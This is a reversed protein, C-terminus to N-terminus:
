YQPTQRIVMSAMFWESDRGNTRDGMAVLEIHLTGWKNLYVQGELVESCGFQMNRHSYPSLVVPQGTINCLDGCIGGCGSLLVCDLLVCLNFKGTANLTTPYSFPLHPGCQLRRSQPFGGLGTPHPFVSTMSGKFYEERTFEQSIGEWLPRCFTRLSVALLLIEKTPLLLSGSETLSYMVSSWLTFHSIHIYLFALSEEWLAASFTCGATADHTGLVTYGDQSTTVRKASELSTFVILEHEKRNGTVLVRVSGLVEDPPLEPIRLTSALAFTRTNHKLRGPEVLIGEGAWGSKSSSEVIAIPYAILGNNLEIIIKIGMRLVAARLGLVPGRESQLKSLLSAPRSEAVYVGKCVARLVIFRSLAASTKRGSYRVRTPKCHEMHCVVGVWRLLKSRPPQRLVGKRLEDWVHGFRSSNIIRKLYKCCCGLNSLDVVSLQCLIRGEISEIDATSLRCLASSELELGLLMAICWLM